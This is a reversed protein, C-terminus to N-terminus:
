LFRTTVELYSLQKLISRTLDFLGEESPRKPSVLEDWFHWCRDLARFSRNVDLNQVRSHCMQAFLVKQCNQAEGVLKNFLILLAATSQLIADKHYKQKDAEYLKYQKHLEKIEFLEMLRAGGFCHVLSTQFNANELTLKTYSCQLLQKVGEPNTNELFFKRTALDDRAFLALYFRIVMSLNEEKQYVKADLLDQAFFKTEDHIQEDWPSFQVGRWFRTLLATMAYRNGEYFHPNRNQNSGIYNMCEWVYDLSLLRTEGRNDEIFTDFLNTCAQFVARQADEQARFILCKSAERTSNSVNLCKSAERTSNSVNRNEEAGFYAFLDMGEDHNGYDLDRLDKAQAKAMLVTPDEDKLGYVVRMQKLYFALLRPDGGAASLEPVEALPGNPRECAEMALVWIPAMKQSGPLCLKDMAPKMHRYGYKRETVHLRVLVMQMDVLKLLNALVHTMLPRVAPYSIHAFDVEILFFLHELIWQCNEGLFHHVDAKNNGDLLTVLRTLTELYSSWRHLHAQVGNDTGEWVLDFFHDLYDPHFKMHTKKVMDTETGLIGPRGPFVGPEGEVKNQWFPKEKIPVMPLKGLIQTLIPVMSQAVKTTLGTDLVELCLSSLGRPVAPIPNEFTFLRAFDPDAEWVPDEWYPEESNSPPPTGNYDTELDRAESLELIDVVEKSPYYLSAQVRSDYRLGADYGLLSDDTEPSIAEKQVVKSVRPLMVMRMRDNLLVLSEEAERTYDGLGLPKKENEKKELAPPWKLINRIYYLRRADMNPVDALNLTHRVIKLMRACFDSTFLDATRMAKAVNLPERRRMQLLLICSARTTDYTTHSSSSMIEKLFPLLRSTLSRSEPCMKGVDRSERYVAERTLLLSLYEFLQQRTEPHDEPNDAFAAQVLVELFRVDKRLLLDYMPHFCRIGLDFGPPPNQRYYAPHLASQNMQQNETLPLPHAETATPPLPEPIPPIDAMGFLAGGSLDLEVKVDGPRTVSFVPALYDGLFQNITRSPSPEHRPPPRKRPNRPPGGLWEPQQTGEILHLCELPLQDTLRRRLTDLRRNQVVEKPDFPFGYIKLPLASLDEEPFFIPGLAMLRLVELIQRCLVMREKQAAQRKMNSPEWQGADLGWTVCEHLIFQILTKAKEMQMYRYHWLARTRFLSAVLKLFATYFKRTLGVDAHRVLQYPIKQILLCLVMHWLDGMDLESLIECAKIRSEWTVGATNQDYVHDILTAVLSQFGAEKTLENRFYPDVQALNSTYLSRITELIITSRGSSQRTEQNKVRSFLEVMKEPHRIFHTANVFQADLNEDSLSIEGRQIMLQALELIALQVLLESTLTETGQALRPTLRELSVEFKTILGYVLYRFSSLPVTDERVHVSIAQLVRVLQEYEVKKPSSFGHPDLPLRVARTMKGLAVEFATLAEKIRAQDSYSVVIGGIPAFLELLVARCVKLYIPEVPYALLEDFPNAVLNRLKDPPDKMLSVMDALINQNAVKHWVRIEHLPQTGPAENEEIHCMIEPRMLSILFLVFGAEKSPDNSIKLSQGLHVFVNNMPSTPETETQPMRIKRRGIRETDLTLYRAVIQLLPLPWDAPPSMLLLSRLMVADEPVPEWWELFNFLAQYLIAQIRMYHDTLPHGEVKLSDESQITIILAMIERVIGEKCLDAFFRQDFDPNEEEGRTAFAVQGMTSIELLIQTLYIENEFFTNYARDTLAHPTEDFNQAHAKADVFALSMSLSTTSTGPDVLREQFSHLSARAYEDGAVLKQLDDHTKRQQDSLPKEQVRPNKVRYIFYQLCFTKFVQKMYSEFWGQRQVWRERLHPDWKPPHVLADHFARRQPIIFSRYQDEFTHINPVVWCTERATIHTMDMPDGLSNPLGMGAGPGINEEM